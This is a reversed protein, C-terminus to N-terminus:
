CTSRTSCGAQIISRARSVSGMTVQLKTSICAEGLVPDKRLKKDLAKVREVIPMIPYICNDAREQAGADCSQGKTTIRIEARGRHGRHVALGTAKGVVVFDPVLREVEFLSRQALGDCGEAM